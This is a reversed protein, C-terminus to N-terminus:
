LEIGEDQIYLVFEDASRCVCYYGGHNVVDECFKKQDQTQKGKAGKLEVFVTIGDKIVIFDAIGKHSGINQQNRIALWGNNKWYKKMEKTLEKETM